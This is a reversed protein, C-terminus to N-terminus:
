HKGDGEYGGDIVKLNFFNALEKEKKEILEAIEDPTLITKVKLTGWKGRVKIAVTDQKIKM